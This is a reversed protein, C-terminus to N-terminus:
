NRWRCNPVNKRVREIIVAAERASFSKRGEFESDVLGTDSKFKQLFWKEAGAIEKSMLVIDSLSHLGPVLTTRFEYPISGSLLIRATKKIEKLNVPAGVVKLYKSWPAKIDMAVYDILRNEILDLVIKSDSGNTDLKLKFGMKKIKKIFRKLDPQLTPEGGSIVVGEVKKSRTKLFLFLDKESIRFFDKAQYKNEGRGPPLVLMPNYCFRCRFNCSVTFIVVSVCDPFDVLSLKELGGIIM